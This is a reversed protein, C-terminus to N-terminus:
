SYGGKNINWGMNKYRRMNFEKEHAEHRTLGSYLVYISDGNFDGNDWAEQLKHNVHCKNKLHLIHQSKRAEFNSSVGIYGLLTTHGGSRIHYVSYGSHSKEYDSYDISIDKRLKSKRSGRDRNRVHKQERLFQHVLLSIFIGFIIITGVDM